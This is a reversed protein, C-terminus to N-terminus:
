SCLSLFVGESSIRPFTTVVVIDTDLDVGEIFKSAYDGSRTLVYSRINILGSPGLQDFQKHIVVVCTTTPNNGLFRCEVKIGGLM